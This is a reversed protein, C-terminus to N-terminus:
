LSELESANVYVGHRVFAPPSTELADARFSPLDVVFWAPEVSRWPESTWAPVPLSEAGLHHEVLAAIFADYRQDGM